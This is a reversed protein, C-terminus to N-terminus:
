RDQLMRAPKRVPSRQQHVPKRARRALLGAVIFGTVLV